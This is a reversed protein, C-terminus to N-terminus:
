KQAEASQQAAFESPRIGFQATFCKTFYSPSSFGVQYCIESIRLNGESLLQAAKKLRTLQIMEGPTSDTLAKIKAFLGSRSLCLERALFDVSLETNDFNKEILATIRQVFDTDTPNSAITTVPTLPRSAFSERLLRRLELLNRACALVYDVSFPKEIYTDAGCDMGAIKSANDTKATLLIVPIHSTLPNRRLRRCLEGGDMGPMMWDSIILTVQREQLLALAAEGSTATLVEYHDTMCGSLFSLLEENDDVILVSPQVDASLPDVTTIGPTSASAINGRQSETENALNQSVLSDQCEEDDRRLPLTVVFQTGVGSQSKVDIHGQHIDVINKVISLGIGTGPKNDNAQYFPEFVRRRVEETMGLGDDRVIIVFSPVPLEHLSNDDKLEIWIKSRTYKAANM